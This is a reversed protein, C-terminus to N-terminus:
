LCTEGEEGETEEKIKTYADKQKGLRYSKNTTLNGRCCSSGSKRMRSDSVLLYFGANM